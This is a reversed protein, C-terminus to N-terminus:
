SRGTAQVPAAPAMLAEDIATATLGALSQFGLIWRRRSRGVRGSVVLRDPIYNAEIEALPLEVQVHEHSPDLPGLIVLHEATRAILYRAGPLLRESGQVFVGIALIALGPQNRADDLNVVTGTRPGRRARPASTAAPAAVAAALAGSSTIPAPRLPLPDAARTRTPPRAAVTPTTDASTQAPGTATPPAARLSPSAHAAVDLVPGPRSEGDLREGCVICDRAFGATPEGCAPCRGPPAMILVLLAIPGTLAGLVLWAAPNRLRRSALWAALPGFAIAILPAFPAAAILADRITM